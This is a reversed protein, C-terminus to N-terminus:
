KFPRVVGRPTANVGSPLIMMESKSFWRKIRMSEDMVFTLESFSSKARPFIRLEVWTWAKKGSWRWELCHPSPELRTRGDTPCKSRRCPDFWLRQNSSDVLRSRSALARNDTSHQSEDTTACCKSTLSPHFPGALRHRGASRYDLTKMRGRSMAWVNGKENECVPTEDHQHFGRGVRSLDDARVLRKHLNVLSGWVADEGLGSSSKKFMSRSFIM